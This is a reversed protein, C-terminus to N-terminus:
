RRYEPHSSLIRRKFDVDDYLGFQYNAGPARQGGGGSPIGLGSPAEVLRVVHGYGFYSLYHDENGGPSGGILMLFIYVGYSFNNFQSLDLSNFGITRAAASLFFANHLKDDWALHALLGNWESIALILMGGLLLIATTKKM